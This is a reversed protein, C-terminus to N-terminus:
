NALVYIYMLITKSYKTIFLCFDSGLLSDDILLSIIQLNVKFLIVNILVTMQRIM